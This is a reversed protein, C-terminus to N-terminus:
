ELIAVTNMHKMRGAKDLGFESIMDIYCVVGKGRDMYDVNM